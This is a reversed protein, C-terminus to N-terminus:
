NGNSPKMLRFIGYFVGILAGVPMLWEAMTLMAVVFTNTITGTGPAVAAEITATIEPTINVIFMLGVFALMIATVLKNLSM